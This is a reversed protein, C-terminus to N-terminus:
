KLVKVYECSIWGYSYYPETNNDGDMFMGKNGKNNTMKVFWWVQGTDDTSEALAFGTSGKPYTAIDNGHEDHGWYDTENDIGPSIRLKNEDNITEFAVPQKFKAKPFVTEEIFTERNELIFGSKEHRTKFAYYEIFNNRGGCCAYNYLGFKLGEGRSPENTWFIKGAIEIIKEYGTGNGKLLVVYQSEGGLIGQYILDRIGDANFDLFHFFDASSVGGQELNYFVWEFTTGGKLSNVAQNIDAVDAAIFWKKLNDNAGFFDSLEQAKLNISTLILAIIVLQRM